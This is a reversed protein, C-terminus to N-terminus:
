AWAYDLPWCGRPVNSLLGGFGLSRAESEYLCFEVNSILDLDLGTGNKFPVINVLVGGNPGAGGVATIIGAHVNTGGNGSAVAPVQVLQGIFVPSPATVPM